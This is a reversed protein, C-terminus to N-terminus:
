LTANDTVTECQGARAIRLLSAALHRQRMVSVAVRDHLRQDRAADDAIEPRRVDEAKTKSREVGAENVDPIRHVAQGVDHGGAGPAVRRKGHALGDCLPSKVYELIPIYLDDQAARWSWM